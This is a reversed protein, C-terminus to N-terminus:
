PTDEKFLQELDYNFMRRQTWDPLDGVIAELRERPPPENSRTLTQLVGALFRGRLTDSGIGDAYALAGEVDQEAWGQGLSETANSLLKNNGLNSLRAVAAGPDSVAWNVTIQQLWNGVTYQDSYHLALDFQKSYEKEVSILQHLAGDREDTTFGEAVTLAHEVGREYAKIVVAQRLAMRAESHPLSHTLELATLWDAAVKARAVEPATDEGGLTESRQSLLLKWAGQPDEAILRHAVRQRLMDGPTEGPMQRELQVLLDALDETPTDRIIRLYQTMAAADGSSGLAATAHRVRLFSSATPADTESPSKKGLATLTRIKSVPASNEPADALASDPEGSWLGFGLGFGALGGVAGLKM